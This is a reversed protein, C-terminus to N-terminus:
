QFTRAIEVSDLGVDDFDLVYFEQTFDQGEMTDLEEVTGFDNPAVITPYSISTGLRRVLREPIGVKRIRTVQLNYFLDPADDYRELFEVWLYHDLTLTGEFEVHTGPVLGKTAKPGHVYFRFGAADIVAVPEDHEYRRLVLGNGTYHANGAHTLTPRPNESCTILRIPQLEFSLRVLQGRHLPPYNGDGIHWSEFVATLQV